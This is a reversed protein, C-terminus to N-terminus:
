GAPQCPSLWQRVDAAEHGHGQALWGDTTVGCRGPAFGLMIVPGWTVLLLSRGSRLSSSTQFAPDSPGHGDDPSAERRRVPPHDRGFALDALGALAAAAARNGAM